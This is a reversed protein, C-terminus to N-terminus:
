VPFNSDQIVQFSEVFEQGKKKYVSITLIPQLLFVAESEAKWVHSSAVLFGWTTISRFFFFDAQILFSSPSGAFAEM